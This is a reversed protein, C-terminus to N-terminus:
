RNRQAREFGHLGYVVKRLRGEALQPSGLGGSSHRWDPLYPLFQRERTPSLPFPGPRLLLPWCCASLDPAPVCSSRSCDFACVPELGFSSRPIPRRLANFWRVRATEGRLASFSGAAPFGALRSSALSLRPIRIHAFRCVARPPNERCRFCLNAETGDVVNMLSQALLPIPLLTAFKPYATDV